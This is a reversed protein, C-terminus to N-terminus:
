MTRDSSGTFIEIMIGTDVDAPVPFDPAEEEDLVQSPLGVLYHRRSSRQGEIPERDDNGM